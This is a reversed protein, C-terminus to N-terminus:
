GRTAGFRVDGGCDMFENFIINEHRWEASGARVFATWAFFLFGRHIIM